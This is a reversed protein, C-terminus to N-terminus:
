VTGNTVPYMGMWYDYDIVVEKQPKEDGYAQEDEDSSGMLFPGAPIHCFPMKELTMVEERPDGLRALVRGAEAREIVPLTGSLSDVLQKKLRSLVERGPEIDGPDQAVTDAGVVEAAKGMWLAVRSEAESDPGKRTLQAALNLIHNQGYSGSNYVQEEIGLLVAESWFDGESALNELREVAGRAGIIYCGALYEQFTRHPFSYVTPRQPTGGRGILLGSRHDM